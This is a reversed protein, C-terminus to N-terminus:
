EDKEGEETIIKGMAEVVWGLADVRGADFGEEWESEFCPDKEYYLEQWLVGLNQHLKNIRELLM